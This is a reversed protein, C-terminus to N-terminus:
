ALNSAAFVMCRNGLVQKYREAQTVETFCTIGAAVEIHVVAVTHEVVV